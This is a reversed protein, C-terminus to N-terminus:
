MAYRTTCAHYHHSMDGDNGGSCLFYVAMGFIRRCNRQSRAFGFYWDIAEGDPVSYHVDMNGRKEDAKTIRRQVVDEHNCMFAFLVKAMGTMNRKSMGKEVAQAYSSYNIVAM